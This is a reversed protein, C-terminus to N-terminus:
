NLMPRIFTPQTHIIDLLNHATSDTNQGSTLFPWFSSLVNVAITDPVPVL